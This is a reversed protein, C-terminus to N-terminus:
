NRVILSFGVTRTVEGATGTVLIPYTGATAASSVRLTARSTTDGDAVATAPNPSWTATVGTPLGSLSMTVPDDFGGFSKVTIVKGGSSGRPISISATSALLYDGVIESARHCSGSFTDTYTSGAVPVFAGVYDSATLNLELVGFTTGRKAELLPHTGITAPGLNRGGTGVIVQRLGDGQAVQNGDMPGYRQYNHEHGTLLLDARAAYLRDFIPKMNAIGPSYSGRSVMPHHIYAATCPKTNARLDADLWALQTSSVVGGTRSNLAIFHWEGVDYSHYGKSRDGAPGVQVGVGNFYDFYGSAGSTTYEHNGPVPATIAKFRGWNPDYRTNYESLTGSDYANDGFVLAVIPNIAIVVDSTRRCDNPTSDCLDGAGAVVATTDALAKRGAQYGSLRYGSERNSLTASFTICSGRLARAYFTRDNWRTGEFRLRDGSSSTLELRDDGHLQLSEFGVRIWQSGSDCVRVPTTGHLDRVRVGDEHFQM